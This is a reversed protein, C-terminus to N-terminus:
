TPNAPTTAPNIPPVTKRPCAGNAATIKFLADLGTIGGNNHVIVTVTNTGVVFGASFTTAYQYPGGWFGNPCPMLPTVAPVSTSNIKVSTVCNDALLLAKLAATELGEECL